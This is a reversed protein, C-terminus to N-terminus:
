KERRNFIDKIKRFIVLMSTNAESFAWKVLAIGFVTIGLGIVVIGAVSLYGYTDIPTSFILRYVGIAIVSLGSGLVSITAVAISFAIIGFIFYSLIKVPVALASTGKKNQQKVEIIFDDEDEIRRRIQKVTGLNAIFVAEEEGTDVADQIIEDYYFLVEAVDIERSKNLEKKLQRLFEKRRM